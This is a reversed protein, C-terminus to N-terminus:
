RLAFIAALVTVLVVLFGLVAYAWNGRRASAARRAVKGARGPLWLQFEVGGFSVVDGSNLYVRGGARARNVFTGNTCNPLSVISVSGNEFVLQAHKDSVHTDDIVEDSQASRGVLTTGPRLEIRRGEVAASLGVLVPGTIDTPALLEAKMARAPSEGGPMITTRRPGMSPREWWKTKRPAVEPAPAVAAPAAPSAPPRGPKQAAAAPPQEAAKEPPPTPPRETASVPTRGPRGPAAAPAREAATELAPAPPREVPAAPVREPIKEPAQDAARDASAPPPREADPEPAGSTPGREPAKAPAETARAPKAAVPESAVQSDARGAAVGGAAKPAVVTPRATPGPKARASVQHVVRFRYRDFGIEDGDKVARKQVREGNVSTGNTSGLDEVVLVGDEVTIRAHNRSICEDPIPLGCDPQRGVTLRGLIPVTKGSDAAVLLWEAPPPRLVTAAPGRAEVLRLEVRGLRLRDGPGLTSRGSVPTDNVFTEVGAGPDLTIVGDQEILLEAHLEAVSPDSVVVDNDPRRGLRIRNKMLAVPATKMDAFQLQLM